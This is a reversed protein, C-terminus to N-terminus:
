PVFFDYDYIYGTKKFLENWEDAHLITEAVLNWGELRRREEDTRYGNVKIFANKRTVRVIEELSKQVGIINLNHITAISIVLDFTSDEFPLDDCSAISMRSRVSPMANDMCYTSIDVGRLNLLPNLEFFDNLMFGKACGIDLISSTDSLEYHSYFDMVVPKFFKPNYTYGGLGMERPGDFYEFGFEKALVIQDRSAKQSRLISDDRNTKPYNKMM